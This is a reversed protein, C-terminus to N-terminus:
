RNVKLELARICTSRRQLKSPWKDNKLAARRSHLFTRELFDSKASLLKNNQNQRSWDYQLFGYLCFQRHGASNMPIAWSVPLLVVSHNHLMFSFFPAALLLTPNQIDSFFNSGHHFTFLTTYCNKKWPWFWLSRVVSWSAIERTEM